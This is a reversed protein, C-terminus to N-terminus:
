MREVDNLLVAFDASGLLKRLAFRSERCANYAAEAKRSDTDFGLEAAWDEFSEDMASADMALCDLVEEATPPTPVTWALFAKKDYASANWPSSAPKGRRHAQPRDYGKITGTFLNSWTRHGSGKTFPTVMKRKGCKLTCKWSQAEEDGTWHAALSVPNAEITIGHRQVFTEIKM